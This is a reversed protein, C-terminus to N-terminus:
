RRMASIRKSLADTHIRKKDPHSQKIEFARDSEVTSRKKLYSSESAQICRLELVEEELSAIKNFFYAENLKIDDYKMELYRNDLKLDMMNNAMEKIDQGQAELKQSLENITLQLDKDTESQVKQELPEEEWENSAEVYLQNNLEPLDSEKSKKSFFSQIPEPQELLLPESNLTHLPHWANVTPKLIYGDKNTPLTKKLYIELHEMTKIGNAKIISSVKEIHEQPHSLMNKYERREFTWCCKALHGDKKQDLYDKFVSEYIERIATRFENSEQHLYTTHYPLPKFRRFTKKIPDQQQSSM